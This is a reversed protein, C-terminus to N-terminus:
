TKPLGVTSRPGRTSCSGGGFVNSDLAAQEVTYICAEAESPGSNM